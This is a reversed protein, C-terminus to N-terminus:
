LMSIGCVNQRYALKFGRGTADENTRFPLIIPGAAFDTVPANKTFDETVSGDNLRQGCLRIGNIAIFDDGCNFVEAGAQDEAVVM